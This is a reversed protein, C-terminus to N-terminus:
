VFRVKIRSIRRSLPICNMNKDSWLLTLVVHIARLIEFVDLARLVPVLTNCRALKRFVRGESLWSAPMDTQLVM